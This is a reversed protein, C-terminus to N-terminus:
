VKGNILSKEASQLLGLRSLLKQLRVPHIIIIFMGGVINGLTVPIINGFMVYQEYLPVGKSMLGIPILYMNAVCHEFGSAVFIMIPLICCFIKSIIDKAFIAMIIALIVLMNCFIGRVFCESFSLALKADAVKVAIQGLGSLQGNRVFLGTQFVVIAFLMSGVFNGVYVTFLNKVVKKFQYMLSLLGVMMIINGTFLEAEAINVLVLGVGFIMGGVIKGAGQDLAVLYAHGGISIYIGALVSLFFIQWTKTNAKSVGSLTMSVHVEKPSLKPEYIEHKTSALRKALLGAFHVALFQNKRSIEDFQYKSLRIVTLESIAQISASRPAGTLLATEGFAENKGLRAVERTGEKGAKIFARARGGVIVYYGDGPDGENFVMENANFHLVELNPKLKELNNGTLGRFLAINSFDVSEILKRDRQTSHEM